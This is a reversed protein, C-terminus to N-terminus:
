ANLKEEGLYARELPLRIAFCAGRPSNPEYWAEGGNARALGRVISLGLGTGRAAKSKKKDVRAFKEFLHPEFWHPIGPGKDCVRVIACDNDTSVEITYPPEGYVRANSIYNQIMRVVHEPDAIVPARGNRRIDIDVEDATGNVAEAVVDNMDLPESFVAIEGVDLKSVTLLDRILRDLHFVQRKVASVYERRDHEGVTEWNDSLLEIFGQIVTVPTRLDHSAIAVFDRMAERSRRELEFLSARGLALDAVIASVSLMQLEDTGFFPTFPGITMVLYGNEMRLVRGSGTEIPTYLEGEEPLATAALISKADDASMGHRGIVERDADVLAAGQGGFLQAISPVFSAAIEARTLSGALGIEMQRIAAEEKQRWLVRVVRPPAFGLLFLPGTALSIASGIIQALGPKASQAPFFVSILVSGVLGAAGAAM